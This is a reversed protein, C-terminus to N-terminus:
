ASVPEAAAQTLLEADDWDLYCENGPWRFRSGPVSCPHKHPHVYDASLKMQPLHEDCCSMMVAVQESADDLAFGHWTADRSCSITAGPHALHGCIWHEWEERPPGLFPKM